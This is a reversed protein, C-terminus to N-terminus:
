VGWIDDMLQQKTFIVGPYSLLKYLLKFETETLDISRGTRQTESSLSM